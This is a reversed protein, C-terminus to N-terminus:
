KNFIKVRVPKEYLKENNINKKIFEYLQDSTKFKTKVFSDNVMELTLVADESVSYRFFIFTREVEKMDDICQANIFQVGDVM